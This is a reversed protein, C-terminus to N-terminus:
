RHGEPLRSVIAACKGDSALTGHKWVFDGPLLDQDRGPYPPVRICRCGLAALNANKLLYEPVVSQELVQAATLAVAPGRVVMGLGSHDYDIGYNDYLWNGNSLAFLQQGLQLANVLANVVPQTPTDKFDMAMCYARNSDDAGAPAPCAYGKTGFDTVIMKALNPWNAYYADAIPTRPRCAMAVLDRTADASFGNFDAIVDVPLAPTYFRTSGFFARAATPRSPTIVDVTSPVFTIRMFDNYFNPDRSNDTVLSPNSEPFLVYGGHGGNAVGDARVPTASFFAAAATVAVFRPLTRM